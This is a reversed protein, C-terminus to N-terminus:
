STVIDRARFAAVATAVLLAAVASMAALPLLRLAEAPVTPTREFPSLGLVWAPLDLLTGFMGAVLCVTLALWGGATWRPRLGFLAAGLATLLWVAPLYTVSAAVLRPVQEAGGGVVAYALGLGLGGALLSIAGGGLAVLLHSALWARRSTRTALLPEARQEAEEARLRGVIQLAPGSAILAIILLSTSLYSDTLTAAGSAALIDGIAENDGIFDDISEALSGYVLGLILVSVAWWAAAGRHLRVALGLPSSLGPAARTPGPTPAVMGAGFDRRAALTVALRILAAGLLVLLLLPWWREGAFPRAQQAWGIPSLWSLRGDGVDGVARLVFSAGLVAGAAGTAVRPNESVQATVATIGVFALGLATFSAGFVISGHTPLDQLVLSTAVTVGLVVQLVTVVLLGAALPAHRGVPMSRVLELRGSDEEGRTARGVLLLSMLGVMILGFAGVQFAVQGGLTDLAQDPGNFALAAPNDRAVIAAADLDAETPYLETTSITTIVVLAVIGALWALLRIRDRAVILEVLPRTGVLDSM